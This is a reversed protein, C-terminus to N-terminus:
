RCPTLRRRERSLSGRAAAIVMRFTAPNAAVDDASPGAGFRVCLDHFRKSRIMRVIEAISEPRDSIKRRDPRKNTQIRAVAPPGYRRTLFVEALPLATMLARWM